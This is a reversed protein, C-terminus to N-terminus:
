SWVCVCVRMCVCVCVSVCLCVCVFVCVCAHVHVKSRSGIFGDMMLHCCYTDQPVYGLGMVNCHVYTGRCYLWMKIVGKCNNSAWVHSGRVYQVVSKTHICSRYPRRKQAPQIHKYTDKRQVM